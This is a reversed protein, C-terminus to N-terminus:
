RKKRKRERRAMRTMLAVWVLARRRVKTIDKIKMSNKQSRILDRLEDFRVCNFGCILCTVLFKKIGRTRKLVSLGRRTKM